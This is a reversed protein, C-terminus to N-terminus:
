CRWTGVRVAINRKTIECYCGFSDVSSLEMCREQSGDAQSRNLTMGEGGVLQEQSMGRLVDVQHFEKPDLESDKNETLM